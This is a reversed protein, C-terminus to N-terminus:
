LTGVVSTRARLLDDLTAHGEHGNVVCREVMLDAAQQLVAAINAISLGELLEAAASPTVSAEFRARSKSMWNCVFDAIVARDPLTFEVKETFRGGRLAAADMNEPHNTAAIWVVDHTKGGAGDIATLLRNTVSASHPAYRRDALVDDAEDLFVICPRIDRAERALEEIRDPNGLLENGSASVFAWGSSKALARATLTKGTGPPGWFLVGAPVTGGLEEIREIDRMRAAIGLLRQKQSPMMILEDVTPTNEPLVGKRGQITRLAEQLHVYEIASRQAKVAARAAEDAVTRLRAVSFGSWRRAAMSLADADLTLERHKALANRIIAARAPEDPPTIEVKFDFRGERIAAQDLKALFNTAAIVVIMSERAKVLETLIANTTKASEETGGSMAANRDKILSDIEDLFLVCPSQARADKFARMVQETTQNVWSSAVDGFTVSILPLGLEGALAEAFLTKGNGPEGFLLIGNRPTFNEQGLLRQAQVIEQGAEFLREKVEAMGTVNYFTVKPRVAPFKHTPRREEPAQESGGVTPVRQRVQEVEPALWRQGIAVITLLVGFILNPIFWQWQGGTTIIPAFALIAVLSLGPLAFLTRYRLLCFAAFLMMAAASIAIGIGAVAYFSGTGGFFYGIGQVGMLILSVIFMWYTIGRLMAEVRDLVYQKTMM